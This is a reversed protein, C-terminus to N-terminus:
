YKLDTKPELHIETAEPHDPSKETIFKAPYVFNSNTANAINVLNSKLTM